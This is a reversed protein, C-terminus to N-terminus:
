EIIRRLCSLFLDRSLLARGIMRHKSACKRKVPRSALSTIKGAKKAKQDTSSFPIRNAWCNFNSSQKFKFALVLAAVFGNCDEQNCYGETQSKSLQSTEPKDLEQKTAKNPNTESNNLETQRKRARKRPKEEDFEIFSSNSSSSNRSSISGECTETAKRSQYSQIKDIITAQM